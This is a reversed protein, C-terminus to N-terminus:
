KEIKNIIVTTPAQDREEERDWSNKWIAPCIRAMVKSTFGPDWQRTLGMHVCKQEQLDKCQKYALSFETSKACFDDYDQPTYGRDYAFTKFYYNDPQKMWEILAKAEAKLWEQTYKEPRGGKNGLAYKNGFPAGM